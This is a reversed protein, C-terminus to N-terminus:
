KLLNLFSYKYAKNKFNMLRKKTIKDSKDNIIVDFLLAFWTKMILYILWM